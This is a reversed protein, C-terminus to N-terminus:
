CEAKLMRSRAKPREKEGEKVAKEFASRLTSPIGRGADAICFTLSPPRKDEHRIQTCFVGCGAGPNVAAHLVTNFGLELFLVRNLIDITEIDAFGQQLLVLHLDREVAPKVSPREKWISAEGVLLFDNKDFWHLPIYHTTEHPDPPYHKLEARGQIHVRERWDSSGAKREFLDAFRLRELYKELESPQGKSSRPWNITVPKGEEAIRRLIVALAALDPAGFFGARAFSVVLGPLDSRIKTHQNSDREFIDSRNLIKAFSLPDRQNLDEFSLTPISM